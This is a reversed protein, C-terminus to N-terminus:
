ATASSRTFLQLDSLAALVQARIHMRKPDGYVALAAQRSHAVRKSTWGLTSIALRETEDDYEDEASGNIFKGTKQILARRRNQSAFEWRKREPHTPSAVTIVLTTPAGSADKIQVDASELVEETDFDYPVTSTQDDTM